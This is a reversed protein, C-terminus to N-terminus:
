HSSTTEHYMPLARASPEQLDGCWKPLWFYPIVHAHHPYHREFIKRYLYAEKTPPPLLTYTGKQAHFEEDSVHQNIYEQLVHHWSREPNSVGDSFAEKKRWLVESPLLDENAFAKRLMYKEMRSSSVRLAPDMSMYLAVFDKDAFPVRAELGQSSITRDSRLSDFYHIDHVLRTCEQHFAETSPAKKLYMYGGCVEDSYDGNFVVKFPTNRAIYKSILLNGVSARVTTIDYSEIIRVTEEIASLFDAEQLEVSHHVSGIHQAVLKAYQLDTSGQIGISFTHLPHNVHRAVLAAVLSSDLGGSLLACVPRDSMLRKVVAQEFVEKIRPLYDEELTGLRYPIPLPAYCHHISPGDSVHMLRIHGPRFQMTETSFAHLAKLESAFGFGDEMQFWFLPRVGYPDRCALVHQDKKDYLVFAFEGDLLTPLTTLVDQIPMTKKLHLYLQLITECDSTSTCNLSYESKLAYQNYIEGNCLLYVDDAYMPQNGADSLDNVKLRQFCLFANTDYLISTHDPGRPQLSLAGEWGQQASHKGYVFFIGCM